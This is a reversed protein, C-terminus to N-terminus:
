ETKREKMAALNVLAPKDGTIVLARDHGLHHMDFSAELASSFGQADQTRNVARKAMRLAFGDMRAIRHALRLAAPFLEDRPVVQNVMGLQRAEEASVSDGTFLIEKAKRPGFEWAHAHYEVGCIGMFLVPDSFEADDAAVILDCPWCLMLGAAICKGQVAAISPKPVDRWRKAFHFYYRTEWDYMADPLPIETDASTPQTGSMDHGSSFHRGTSRLVIVKIERDSEALRWARDLEVLVKESQANAAEPRDLTIIGVHDDVDYQVHDFRM